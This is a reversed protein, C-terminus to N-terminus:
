TNYQIDPINHTNQVDSDGWFTVNVLMFIQWAYM